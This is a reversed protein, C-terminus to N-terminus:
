PLPYEGGRPEVVVAAGATPATMVEVLGDQLPGHALGNELGTDGLPRGAMGQPVRTGRMQELRAVVDTRNLFEQTM